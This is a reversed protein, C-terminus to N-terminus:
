MDTLLDNMKQNFEVLVPIVKATTIWNKALGANFLKSKNIVGAPEQIYDEIKRIVDLRDNLKNVAM